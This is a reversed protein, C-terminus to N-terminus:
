TAERVKEAMWSRIQNLSWRSTRHGLKSQAPFAKAGIMQYIKARKFGVLLQVEDICILRDPESFNM